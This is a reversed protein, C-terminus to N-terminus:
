PVEVSMKEAPCLPSDGVIVPVPGPNIFDTAKKAVLMAHKLMAMSSAKEYFIPFIGVTARPRVDEAYQLHSFFGSYTM